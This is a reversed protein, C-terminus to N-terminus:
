TGKPPPTQGEQRALLRRINPRHRLIILLAIGLLGYVAYRDATLSAVGLAVAVGALSGVSSIRLLKYAVLWTVAGAAAAWPALAIAVGFGTAVGKGGRLRLWVPFCHGLVAAFACASALMPPAQPTRAAFLVPMAGKLADLVLTAIAAPRGAAVLTALPSFSLAESFRGRVAYHFARTAGCGPCPLGTAARFPCALLALPPADLPLAAAAALLLIAVGAFALAHVSPRGARAIVAAGGCPAPGAHPNRVRRADPLLARLVAGARVGRRWDHLHSPHGEDWGRQTRRALDPGRDIWVGSRRAARASRLRVRVGRLHCPIRAKGTRPHRRHRADARRQRLAAPVHVGADAARARRGM